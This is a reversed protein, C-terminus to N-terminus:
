SVVTELKFIVPRIGDNCCVVQPKDHFFPHNGLAFAVAADRIPAWGVGCLFAEPKEGSADAFMVDGAKFYPCVSYHPDDVYLEALEEDFLCKLVTIKCKPM